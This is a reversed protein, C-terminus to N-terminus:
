YKCKNLASVYTAIMEKHRRKLFGDAFHAKRSLQNIADMYEPQLSMTRLIGPLVPRGLLRQAEAYRPDGEEAWNIRMLGAAKKVATQIAEPDASRKVLKGRRDFVLATPTELIEYQRALPEQGTKLAIVRFGVKEGASRRLSDLFARELTSTPKMFVFVTPQEPSLRAALDAEKGASVQIPAEASPPPKPLIGWGGLALGLTVPFLLHM